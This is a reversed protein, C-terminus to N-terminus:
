MREVVGVEGTTRSLLVNSTFHITLQLDSADCSLVMMVLGTKM